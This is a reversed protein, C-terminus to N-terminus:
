NRTVPTIFCDGFNLIIKWLAPQDNGMGIASVVKRRGDPVPM